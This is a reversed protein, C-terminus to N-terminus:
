RIFHFLSNASLMAIAVRVNEVNDDTYFIDVIIAVGTLHSCLVSITAWIRFRLSDNDELNMGAYYFLNVFYKLREDISDDTLQEPKEM